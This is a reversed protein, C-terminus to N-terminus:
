LRRDEPQRDQQQAGDVGVRGAGSVIEVNTIAQEAQSRGLADFKEIGLMHLFLPHTDARGIANVVASNQGETVTVSELQDSIGAKAMYDRVVSARDLKQTLSAAALTSRDLTNWLNTRTTEYRMLDVVFGGMMTMLVFLLLAFIILAGDEDRRFRRIYYSTVNLM